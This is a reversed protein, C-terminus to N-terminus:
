GVAQLLLDIRPGRPAVYDLIFEAQEQRRAPDRHHQPLVKTRPSVVPSDIAHIFVRQDRVTCFVGSWAAKMWFTPAAEPVAASVM